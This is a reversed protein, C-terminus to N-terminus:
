AEASAGLLPQQVLSTVTPGDVSMSTGERRQMEAEGPEEESDAAVTDGPLAAHAPAAAVSSTSKSASGDGAVPTYSLQHLITPRPQYEWGEQMKLKPDPHPALRKNSQQRKRMISLLLFDGVQFKVDALTRSDEKPDPIISHLM